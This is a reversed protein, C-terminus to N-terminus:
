NQPYRAALVAELDAVTLGVLSSRVVRGASAEIAVENPVALVACGAAEASRLGIPSDEIVLCNAPPVDLLEMARLYPAPDPKNASVEDGCVTAAFYESGLTRLAIDVLRRHTATVLAAPIGAAAVAQVLEEAGPRWVLDTEFMEATRDELFRGGAIVDAQTADTFGVDAHIIRVSRLLSSGVMDARASPSLEGGLGFQGLPCESCKRYVTLVRSFAGREDNDANADQGIEEDKAM